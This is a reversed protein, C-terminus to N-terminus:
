RKVGAGAVEFVALTDARVKDWSFHDEYAQRARRCMAEYEDKAERIALLVSAASESDQYDVLVACQYPALLKTM